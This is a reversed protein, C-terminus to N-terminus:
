KKAVNIEGGNLYQWSYLQNKVVKNRQDMIVVELQEVRFNKALKIEKSLIQYDKFGYNIISNNKLSAPKDSARGTINIQVSGSQQHRQKSAQLLVLDLKYTNLLSFRAQDALKISVREILINDNKANFMARKYLDVRETLEQREQHFNLLKDQIEISSQKSIELERELKINTTKLELNEQKLTNYKDKLKSLVTVASKNYNNVYTYGGM